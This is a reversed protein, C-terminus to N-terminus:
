KSKLYEDIAKAATKGAGMALIVTKPGTVVDGGAFVGQRSTLGTQEDVIIGGWNNIDLGPTTDSILPNPLTGISIVVCDVDLIFESDNKIIPRPRGSEDPEGLKIEVCKIGNVNDSDDGLIEVPNTLIKFIIGEQKAHYIEELLAPMEEESRRYVIYVDDAGLRKACRAVDMAVNGGGVVAVKKPKKIQTNNDKIGLEMLNMSSLFENASYVGKLDEGVINMSKSLSAGSGIFVADFHFKDFLEDITVNKGILMNTKIKVGIDKLKNIEKEVIVKPLRFEPIGYVLIGGALNLAEFITVDYGLKALDSACTIGAPGSGVVAVKRGNLKPKEVNGDYNNNHWDAVFMELRGICIPKGKIGRVCRQECQIQQPCVRGCVSPLSSSKNIIEYAQKFNGQSVKLIFEPINIHVPCGAICPKHKCQLCRKAEDIAQQQTYGLFAEKLNENKANPDEISIKNKSLSMDSM